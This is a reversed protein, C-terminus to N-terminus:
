VMDSINFNECHISFQVNVFIEHTLNKMCHPSTHNTGAARLICPAYSKALLAELTLM